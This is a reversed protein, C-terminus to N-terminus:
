SEDPKPKKGELRAVDTVILSRVLVLTEAMTLSLANAVAVLNHHQTSVIGIMHQDFEVENLASRWEFKAFDHHALYQQVNEQVYGRVAEVPQHLEEALRALITEHDTVGELGLEKLRKQRNAADRRAIVDLATDQDVVPPMGSMRPHSMVARHMLVYLTGIDTSGSMARDKDLDVGHSGPHSHDQPVTM